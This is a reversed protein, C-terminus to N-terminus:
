KGRTFYFSCEVYEGFVRSNPTQTADVNYPSLVLGNPVVYRKRIFTTSGMSLMQHPLELRFKVVIANVLWSICGLLINIQDPPMGLIIYCKM